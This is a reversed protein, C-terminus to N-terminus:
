EVLLNIMSTLLFLAAVIITAFFLIKEVGRRSRYSAGSGGLVSGLGTGRTQLLIAAIFVISLIIQTVVIVTNM